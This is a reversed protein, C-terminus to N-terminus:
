GVASEGGETGAYAQEDLLGGDRDEGHCETTEAFEFGALTAPEAGAGKLDAYALGDEERRVCGFGGDGGAEVGFDFFEECWILWCDASSTKDRPCSTASIFCTVSLSGAKTAV